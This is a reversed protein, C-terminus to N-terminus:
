VKEVTSGPCRWQGFNGCDVVVRTRKVEVVRGAMEKPIRGRNTKRGTRILVRDGPRLTGIREKGKRRRAETILNSLKKLQEISMADLDMRYVANIDENIKTNEPGIMNIGVYNNSTLKMPM